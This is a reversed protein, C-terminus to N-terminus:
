ITYYLARSEYPRVPQHQQQQDCLRHRHFPIWNNNTRRRGTRLTPVSCEPLYTIGRTHVTNIAKRTLTQSPRTQDLRCGMGLFVRDHHPKLPQSHAIRRTENYIKYQDRGHNAFDNLNSTIWSCHANERPKPATYYM